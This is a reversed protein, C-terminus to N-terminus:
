ASAGGAMAPVISIRDREGVPTDLGELSRIEDDNRFVNIFRKVEGDSDLIKAAVGPHQADVAQILEAVSSGEVELKSAGATLRRLPTPIYVTTM